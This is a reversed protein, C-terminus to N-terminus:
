ISQRFRNVMFLYWLYCKCLIGYMGNLADEKMRLHQKAPLGCKDKCPDTTTSIRPFYRVFLPKVDEETGLKLIYYLLQKVSGNKYLDQANHFIHRVLDMVVPHETKFNFNDCHGSFLKAWCEKTDGVFLKTAYEVNEKQPQISKLYVSIPRSCVQQLSQMTKLDSFNKKTITIASSLRARGVTPLHTPTKHWGRGRATLKPVPYEM